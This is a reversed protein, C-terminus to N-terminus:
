INFNLHLEFIYSLEPLSLTKHYNLQANQNVHYIYVLCFYLGMYRYVWFVKSLLDKNTIIIVNQSTMINKQVHFKRSKM